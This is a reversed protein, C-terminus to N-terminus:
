TFKKLADEFESNSVSSFTTISPKVVKPQDLSHYETLEDTNKYAPPAASVGNVVRLIRSLDDKKDVKSKIASAVKDKAEVVFKESTKKAAKPPNGISLLQTTKDDIAALTNLIESISETITEAQLNRLEIEEGPKCVENIESLTLVSAMAAETQAIINELDCIYSKILLNKPQHVEEEAAITKATPETLWDKITQSLVSLAKSLKM